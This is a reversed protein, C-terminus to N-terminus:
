KEKVFIILEDEKNSAVFGLSDFLKISKDNNEEIEAVYKQCNHTAIVHQIASKAIGQRQYRPNVAVALYMINDIIEFQVKGVLTDSLLIKLLYANETELIYDFFQESIGIWQHIEPLSLLEKLEAM